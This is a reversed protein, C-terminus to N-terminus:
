FLLFLYLCKPVRWSSGILFNNWWWKKKVKQIDQKKEWTVPFGASMKRCLSPDSRARYWSGAWLLSAFTVKLRGGFGSERVSGFIFPGCRFMLLSESSTTDGSAPSLRWNGWWRQLKVFPVSGFQRRRWRVWSETEQKKSLITISPIGKKKKRWWWKLEGANDLSSLVQSMIDQNMPLRNIKGCKQLLLRLSTLAAQDLWLTHAFSFTNFFIIPTWPVISFFFM